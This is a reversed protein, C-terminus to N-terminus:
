RGALQLLRELTIRPVAMWVDDPLAPEFRCWLGGDDTDPGTGVLLRAERDATALHLEFALKAFPDVAGPAALVSERRAYRLCPAGLVANAEATLTAVAGLETDRGAAPPRNTDERVAEVLVGGPKVLTWRLLRPAWEDKPLFVPDRYLELDLDLLEGLRGKMAFLEGPQRPDRVLTRGDARAVEFTASPLVPPAHWMLTLTAEPKFPTDGPLFEAVEVQDLEAIVQGFSNRGKGPNARARFPREIWWAGNPHQEQREVLWRPTGDPADCRLSVAISEIRTWLRRPRLTDVRLDLLADVGKQDVTFYLDPNRQECRATYGQGELLKGIALVRTAEGASVTVIAQPRDPLGTVDHVQQTRKAAIFDGIKLLSLRQAISACAQPDAMLSRPQLIRWDRLGGARVARVVEIEAEPDLPIRQIEFETITDAELPFVRKDRWERLNQELVNPVQKGSRFIAEGDTTALIENGTPDDNGYRVAIERGGGRVTAAMRPAVLGARLLDDAGGALPERWSDRLAGLLTRVSTPDAVDRLPFPDASTAQEDGYRVDVGGGPRRELRMRVGSLLLVDIQEWQGLLEADILPARGAPPAPPDGLFRIALWALVGLLLVVLTTRLKM